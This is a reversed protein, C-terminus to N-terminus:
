TGCFTKYPTDSPPAPEQYPQHSPHRQYPHQVAFLLQQYPQLDGLAAASLAEEVKHNRPILDPNSALMLQRVQELSQPQRQLRQQWRQYWLLFQQNSGWPPSQPPQCPDLLRFTNTYDASHHQMWELLDEVLQADQSEETFLGLKKKMIQMWKEKYTATYASLHEKAIAVATEQQTAILPLLTEAFRCLNWLGIPIQNAYAYRGEIDISSFVTNPHYADMFACPGYDITEGSVTMNDTNMVGHIFGVSMWHAILSAQSAVVCDLLELAAQTDTMSADYHSPYHRRLSYRTLAALANKNQLLACFEFTGVRIHSSAVRCLVAGPLPQNRWITQGTACVALSRTTPIGLAHIAESILYERLMPGLAARGDGQRSYITRGSGKLQIDFTAGTPTLQEGLLIARGDGLITFHGFQHGAYAQAIPISEPPLINGSLIQAGHDSNLAETDLGLQECLTQNFIVIRPAPVPEPHTITYLQPDLSLYSQRLRWGVKM